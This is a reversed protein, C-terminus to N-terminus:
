VEVTPLRDKALLDDITQRNTQQLNLKIQKPLLKRPKFKLTLEVEAPKDNMEHWQHSEFEKWKWFANNQLLGRQRFETRQLAMSLMYLGMVLMLLFLVGQSSFYLADLVPSGDSVRYRIPRLVFIAGCFFMPVFLLAIIDMRSSSPMRLILKGARWKTLPYGLALAGFFAMM